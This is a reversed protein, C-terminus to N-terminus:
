FRNDKHEQILQHSVLDAIQYSHYLAFRQKPDDFDIQFLEKIKKIRYVVTNKHVHLKEAAGDLHRDSEIYARTTELYFTEHLLDYERLEKYHNHYYNTELNKESSSLILSYLKYDNYEFIPYEPHLKLGITLATAAQHYYIPLSLLDDFSDSIGVHLGKEEFYNKNGILLSKLSSGPLDATNVLVVVYKQYFFTWCTPLLENLFALLKEHEVDYIKYYTVDITLLQNHSRDIWNTQKLREQLQQHTAVKNNLCDILIRDMDQIPNTCLDIEIIRSFLQSILKYVEPSVMELSHNSEIAIIYGLHMDDAYIKTVCRRLPSTYCICFFPDNNKPANRVEGINLFGAIYEYSCYGREINGLWQEDETTYTTSFGLINFSTDIVIMPNKIIKSAAELVSALTPKILYANLLDAADNTQALEEDLIRQTHQYLKELDTGFPFFILTNRNFQHHPFSVGELNDILFFCCGSLRDLRERIQSAQGIYITNNKFQTTAELLAVHYIGRDFPAESILQPHFGSLQDLFHHVLKM